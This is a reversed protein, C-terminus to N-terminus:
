LNEWKCAASGLEGGVSKEKTDAAQVMIGILRIAFSIADSQSIGVADIKLRYGSQEPQEKLTM